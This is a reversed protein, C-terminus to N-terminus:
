SLDKKLEDKTRFGVLQNKLKGNEFVLLNPISMVGYETAVEEADDINLKYFKMDKLEESLEDVVPSLMRCPGCWDAYCDVLVKGEKIAEKFENEKIEKVM